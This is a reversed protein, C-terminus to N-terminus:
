MMRMMDDALRSFDLLRMSNESLRISYAPKWGYPKHAPIFEFEFDGSMDLLIYKNDKTSIGLFLSKSNQMQLFKSDRLDIRGYRSWYGNYDSMLELLRQKGNSSVLCDSSSSVRTHPLIERNRDAGAGSVELGADSLREMLFDEFLWSAVLDKGYEFPTRMDRNHRCSLLNNYTDPYNQQFEQEDGGLICVSSEPYGYGRAKGVLDPYLSSMHRYAGM